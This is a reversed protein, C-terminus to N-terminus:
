RPREREDLEAAMQDIDVGLHGCHELVRKVARPVGGPEPAEGADACAACLTLCNVGVPTAATAVALHETRGCNECRAALPCAGTADLDVRRHQATM